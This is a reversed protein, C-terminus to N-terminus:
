VRFREGLGEFWHEFADDTIDDQFETNTAPLNIADEYMTLRSRFGIKYKDLMHQVAEERGAVSDVCVREQDDAAFQWLVEQFQRRVMLRDWNQAIHM